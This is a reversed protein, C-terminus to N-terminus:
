NLHKICVFDEFNLKEVIKKSVFFYEVNLKYRIQYRYKHYSTLDELICIYQNQNYIDINQNITQAETM